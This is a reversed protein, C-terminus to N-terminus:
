RLMGWICELLTLALIINVVRFHRLYFKQILVGLGIWTCTAITGITAIVLEFSLLAPFSSMYGVIYGTLATVGFMYIKVNVFQLMFGKLFSASQETNESTTKSFAIHIALWLIYAAGIYKMVDMINPLLSNVGYVFIACIIQVVYYGAFIGFFLPKGKKYGYNTVTNLALINGPGPTFANVVCYILFNSLVAMPMIMLWRETTITDAFLPVYGIHMTENEALPVSIINEGNLYKPFIGSSITYAKLGLMFNVIAGRDNVRIEKDVPIASFLEESFYVSEYEGQVFNLRPYPALDHVSVAKKSALPHDKQLFVHPKASFLETFVLHNEEIVKRMIVENEHSLYLIGLDCVRNKVDDLIQHTGTENYYFAYREQGFRKVLEVFANETFTYHQSSVGFTVKEPLKTIYWDELLEMQQIVQRAYGLFEGGDKTLTIGTRSRLFITIGAETETEKISNSLSPQSIFLLKAAETISGVEAVKLIYKLQQVTM